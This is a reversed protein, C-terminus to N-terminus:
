LHFYVTSFHTCAHVHIHMCSMSHHLAPKNMSMSVCRTCACSPFCSMSCSAHTHISYLSLHICGFVLMTWRQLRMIPLPVVVMLQIHVSRTSNKGHPKISITMSLTAIIHWAAGHMTSRHSTIHHSTIRHSAIRHSAIRQSAIHHSTIRHKMIDYASTICGQHKLYM